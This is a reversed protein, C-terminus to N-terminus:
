RASEARYIRLNLAACQVLQRAKGDRLSVLAGWQNKSPLDLKGLSLISGFHSELVNLCSFKLCLDGYVWWESKLIIFIKSSPFVWGWIWNKSYACYKLPDLWAKGPFLLSQSLELNLPCIQIKHLWCGERPRLGQAGQHHSAMCRQPM